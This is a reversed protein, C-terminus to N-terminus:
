GVEPQYFFAMNTSVQATPQTVKALERITIGVSARPPTKVPIDGPGKPPQDGVQQKKKAHGSPPPPTKEKSSTKQPQATPRTDPLFQDVTLTCRTVMEEGLNAKAKSPNTPEATVLEAVQIPADPGEVPIHTKRNQSVHEASEDRM